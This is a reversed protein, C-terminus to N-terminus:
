ALAIVRLDKMRPVHVQSTSTMLLKIRYNRFAPLEDISFVYEKFDLNESEFAYINSKPFFLFELHLIALHGKPLFPVFQKPCM